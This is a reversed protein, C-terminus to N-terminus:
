EHPPQASAEPAPSEQHFPTQWKGSRRVWTTTAVVKEPLPHAGCTSTITASYTQVVVDPAIWQYTFDTVSFSRIKCYESVVMQLIQAKGRTITGYSEIAVSDDTLLARYTKPDHNKWATWLATENRTLQQEQAAHDPQTQALLLLACVFPLM